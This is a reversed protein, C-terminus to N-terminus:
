AGREDNRSISYACHDEDGIKYKLFRIMLRKQNSKQEGKKPNKSVFFPSCSWHTTNYLKSKEELVEEDQKIQQSAGLQLWVFIFLFGTGSFNKYFSFHGSFIEFRMGFVDMILCLFHGRMYIFPLGFTCVPWKKSFTKCGEHATM